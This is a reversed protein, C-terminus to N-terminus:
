KKRHSHHQNKPRQKHDATHSHDQGNAVPQKISQRTGMITYILYLGLCVFIAGKNIEDAFFFYMMAAIILVFFKLMFGGYINRVVGHGKAQRQGRAYIYVSAASALFLVLNGGIIVDADIGKDALRKGFVIALANVILFFIVLPTLSRKMIAMM